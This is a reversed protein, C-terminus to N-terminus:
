INQYKIMNNLMKNIIFQSVLFNGTLIVDLGEEWYDRPMTEFRNNQILSFWEGSSDKTVKPNKAANNILIDICPIIDCVEKISKVDVVNLFCAKCNNNEYKANLESAVIEAKELNYDALFVKGGNEIIAEAHKKGLLGGGGTILATKGSLDFLNKM